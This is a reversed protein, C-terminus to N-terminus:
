GVPNKLCRAHELCGIKCRADQISCKTDNAGHQELVEIIEIGM